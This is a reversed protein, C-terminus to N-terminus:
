TAAAAPPRTSGEWTARPVAAAAAATTPPPPPCLGRRKCGHRKPRRGDDDDSGRSRFGRPAAPLAAWCGPCWAHVPAWGAASWCCRSSGHPACPRGHPGWRCPVWRWRRGHADGMWGHAHWGAAHPGDHGDDAHQQPGHCCAESGHRPAHPWGRLQRVRGAAAAAAAAHTPARVMWRRGAASCCCNNPSLHDLMCVSCALM